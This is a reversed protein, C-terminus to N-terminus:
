LPLFSLCGGETGNRQSSFGPVGLLSQFGSFVENLGGTKGGGALSTAETGKWHSSLGPFGSGQKECGGNGIEGVFRM